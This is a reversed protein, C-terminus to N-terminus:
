RNQGQEFILTAGAFDPVVVRGIHRHSAIGGQHLTREVVGPDDVAIRLGTFRAGAGTANAAVGYQDQFSVPEVIEIDGCATHATVGISTSHLDRLGTLSKLFVHHDSPSDAVLVVASATRAGNPHAQFAPNWFNEPHHHQCVAFGALPSMPDRAFALSFKLRIMSGDPKLGERGFEFVEVDGIGADAFRKADAAAEASSLLLMSLGEGQALYDRQFAGFSFRRGCDLEIKDPEAVALLEFYFGDLQVIRNHTGWPHVNRAGVIFGARRYADAAAELDHVAHVIHDLSHSM